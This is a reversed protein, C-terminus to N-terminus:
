DTILQFINVALYVITSNTIHATRCIAICRKLCQVAHWHLPFLVIFLLPAPKFVRISADPFAM